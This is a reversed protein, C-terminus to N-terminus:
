ILQMLIPITNYQLVPARTNYQYQIAQFFGTNNIRAEYQLNTPLSTFRSSTVDVQYVDSVNSRLYAIKRGDETIGLFQMKAEAQTIWDQFIQYRKTKERGLVCPALQGAAAAGAGAGANQAAVAAAGALLQQLQEATLVFQQPPEPPDPM